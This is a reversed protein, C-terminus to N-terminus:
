VWQQMISWDCMSDRTHVRTFDGPVKKRDVVIIKRRVTPKALYTWPEGVQAVLKCDQIISGLHNRHILDHTLELCEVRFCYLGSFCNVVPSTLHRLITLSKFYVNINASRKELKGPEDTLPIPLIECFPTSHM